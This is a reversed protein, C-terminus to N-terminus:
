SGSPSLKGYKVLVLPGDSVQGVGPAYLKYDKAGVEIPTTEETKLCKTFTGAPSTFTETLSVVASRDMAVGPAVEQFYASKLNPSGPMALGFRAGKTGSLWAGDHSVVRGDKYIDVDEGFYYVDKTRADIAFYNRSIEVLKGHKTEREEVVRTEVGDVTRTESLVKKTVRDPGKEFVLTYGPELVFYANRGESRLDTKEVAFDRTWVTGAQARADSASAALTALWAFCTLPLRRSFRM